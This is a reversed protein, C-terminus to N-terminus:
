AEIRLVISDRTLSRLKIRCLDIREDFKDCEPITESWDACSTLRHEWKDSKSPDRKKGNTM